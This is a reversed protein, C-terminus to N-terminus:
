ADGGELDEVTLRTGKAGVAVTVPGLECWRASDDVLVGARVLADLLVKLANDPDIAHSKQKVTVAVSVRRRGTARPVGAVHCHLIVVEMAAKKIRRAAAWHRYVLRNLSPPVWGAIAIEWRTARARTLGM